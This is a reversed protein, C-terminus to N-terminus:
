LTYRLMQADKMLDINQVQIHLNRTAERVNSLAAGLLMRPEWTAMTDGIHEWVHLKMYLLVFPLSNEM